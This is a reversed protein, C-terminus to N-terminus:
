QKWKREYEKLAKEFAKEADDLEEKLDKLLDRAKEISGVKFEKTIQSVLQDRAGKAREAEAKANEVDQKLRKYKAEDM